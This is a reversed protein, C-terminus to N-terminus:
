CHCPTKGDVRVERMPAGPPRREKRASRARRRRQMDHITDNRIIEALAQLEFGSRM